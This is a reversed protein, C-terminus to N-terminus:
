ATESKVGATATETTAGETEITAVQAVAVVVTEITEIELTAAGITGIEVGETATVTATEIGLIAIGTV